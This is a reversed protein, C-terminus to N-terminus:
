SNSRSAPRRLTSQDVEVADMKRDLKEQVQKREVAQEQKIRSQLATITESVKDIRGEFDESLHKTAAKLKNTVISLDPGLAWELFERRRKADILGLWARFAAGAPSIKWVVKYKNKLRETRWDFWARVIKVELLAGNRLLQERLKADREERQTRAETAWALFCKYRTGGSLMAMGKALGVQREELTQRVPCVRVRM